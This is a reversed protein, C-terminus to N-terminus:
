QNREQEEPEIYLQSFRKATTCPYHKGSDPVMSATQAEPVQLRERLEALKRSIWEEYTM